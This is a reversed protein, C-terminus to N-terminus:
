HEQKTTIRHFFQSCFSHFLCLDLYLLTALWRAFFQQLIHRAYLAPCMKDRMKFISKKKLNCMFKANKKFSLDKKKFQQSLKMQFKKWTKDWFIINAPDQFFRTGAPSTQFKWAGPSGVVVRKQYPTQPWYGASLADEFPTSLASPSMPLKLRSGNGWM